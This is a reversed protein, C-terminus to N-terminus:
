SQKRSHVELVPVDKRTAMILYSCRISDAFLKKNYILLMNDRIQYVLNQAFDEASLYVSVTNSDVLWAWEKPLKIVCSSRDLDVKGRYFVANEPGELSGYTITYDPNDKDEIRFHKATAYFDGTVNVNGTVDLKYTANTNGISVTGNGNIRVRETLNTGLALYYSSSNTGIVFNRGESRLVARGTEGGGYMQDVDAQATLNVAAVTNITFHIGTNNSSPLNFISCGGEFTGAINTTGGTASAYIGMNQTAGSGNAIFRGGYNTGTTRTIDAEFAVDNGAISSNVFLQRTGPTATGIGVNGTNRPISISNVDSATLADTAEHVGIHFTNTSGNYHTFAGQFWPTSRMDTETFRIRGSEVQNTANGSFNLIPGTDKDDGGLISLKSAPYRTGIGFQGSASVASLVTGASDQWTTLAATQASVARITFTTTGTSQALMFNHAVGGSMRAFYTNDSNVSIYGSSYVVFGGIAAKANITTGSPAGDVYFTIGSVGTTRQWSASPCWGWLDISGLVDGSQVAAKSAYTGRARSMMLRPNHWNTNSYVEGYLMGDTQDANRLTLTVHRPSSTTSVGQDLHYGDVTDADLGSGTGQNGSHWMKYWSGWTTDTGRRVYIHTSDAVNAPFALQTNYGAGSNSAGTLPAITLLGVFSGNPVSQSAGDKFEMGM